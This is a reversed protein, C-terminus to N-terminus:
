VVRPTDCEYTGVKCVMFAKREGFFLEQVDAFFAKADGIKLYTLGNVMENTLQEGNWPFIYEGLSNIAFSIEFDTSESEIQLHLIGTKQNSLFYQLIELDTTRPVVQEEKQLAQEIHTVLDEAQYSIPGDLLADVPTGWKQFEKIQDELIGSGVIAAALPSTM